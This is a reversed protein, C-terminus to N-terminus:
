GGQGAFVLWSLSLGASGQFQTFQFVQAHHTVANMTYPNRFALHAYQALLPVQHHHSIPFHRKIPLPKPLILSGVANGIDDFKLSVHSREAKELFIHMIYQQNDWAASIEHLDVWLRMLNLQYQVYLAFVEYRHYVWSHRILAGSERDAAAAGAFEDDAVVPLFNALHYKEYM